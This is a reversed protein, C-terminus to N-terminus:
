LNLQFFYFYVLFSSESENMLPSHHYTYVHSTHNINIIINKLFSINSSGQCGSFNLLLTFTSSKSKLDSENSYVGKFNEVFNKNRLWQYNNEEKRLINMKNTSWNFLVYKKIIDTNYVTNHYQFTYWSKCNVIVYTYWYKNTIFYKNISLHHFVNYVLLELKTM